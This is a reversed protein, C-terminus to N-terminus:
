LQEIEGEALWLRLREGSPAVHDVEFPRDDYGGLEESVGVLTMAVAEEGAAAHLESRATCYL